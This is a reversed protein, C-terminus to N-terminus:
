SRGYGIFGRSIRRTEEVTVFAKPDIDEVLAVIRPADRRNVVARVLGVTGSAGEGSTRTAGFGAKRIADVIPLSKNMSVINVTAYGKIFREEILMGVWTGVAFGLSYATLNWLNGLNAAVSGFTLAFALAEIFALTAVILGSQRGMILVRITSIAISLVRVFFIALAGVLVNETFMFARDTPSSFFHARFKAGM